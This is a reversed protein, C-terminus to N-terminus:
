VLVMSMAMLGYDEPSLLRIVVITIAWMVLQTLLTLSTAWRVASKTKSILDM